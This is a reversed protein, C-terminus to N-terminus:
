RSHDCIREEDWGRESLFDALPGKQWQYARREQELFERGINLSLRFRYLLTETELDSLLLGILHHSYFIM